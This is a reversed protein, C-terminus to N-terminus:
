KKSIKIARKVQDAMWIFASWSIGLYYSIVIVRARTIKGFLVAEEYEDKLDAAEQSLIKRQKEPLCDAIKLLINEPKDSLRKYSSKYSSVISDLTTKSLYVTILTVIVILITFFILEIPREYDTGLPIVGTSFRDEVQYPAVGYASITFIIGWIFTFTFRLKLFNAIKM